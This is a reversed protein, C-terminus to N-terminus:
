AIKRFYIENSNIKRINFKKLIGEGFIQEFLDYPTKDDISALSRSNMISAVEDVDKQTINNLNATKPICRRLDKNINEVFPKQYSASPNCYFVKTRQIKSNGIEIKSYDDFVIDRDTLIAPFIEQFLQLGLKKELTNFVEAIKNTTKNEILFLFVFPVDSMRLVMVEKRSDIPKGLFDMEFHHSIAATRKFVLWDSWLHGIRNLNDSHKYNYQSLTHNRRKLRPKLYLDYNKVTYIGADIRRYLTKESCKFIEKNNMIIQHIPQKKNRLLDVLLLGQKAFDEESIDAGSRALLNREKALADAKVPEYIYQTLPCYNRKSCNNCVFPFHLMEKCILRTYSSCNVVNKCGKCERNCGSQNCMYRLQCKKFKNCNNCLSGKEKGNRLFVRNRKIERSVSTPDMKLSDAVENLPKRERIFYTLMERKLLNFHKQKNIKM